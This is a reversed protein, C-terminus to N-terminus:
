RARYKRQYSQKRECVRLYITNRSGRAHTHTQTQANQAEGMQWMATNTQILLQFLSTQAHWKRPLIKVVFLINFICWWHMDAHGWLQRMSIDCQWRHQRKLREFYCWFCWSNTLSEINKHNHGVQKDRKDGWSTSSHWSDSHPASSSSPPPSAVRCRLLLVESMLWCSDSEKGPATVSVSKRTNGLNLSITNHFIQSIINHYKQMIHKRGATCSIWIRNREETLDLIRCTIFPALRFVCQTKSYKNWM